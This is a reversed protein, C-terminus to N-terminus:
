GLFLGCQRCAPDRSDVTTGYEACGVPDRVISRPLNLLMSEGIGTIIRSPIRRPARLRIRWSQVLSQKQPIRQDGANRIGCTWGCRHGHESSHRCWASGTRISAKQVDTRHGSLNWPGGEKGKRHVRGPLLFLSKRAAPLLVWWPQLRFTGGAVDISRVGSANFLPIFVFGVPRGGPPLESSSSEEDEEM